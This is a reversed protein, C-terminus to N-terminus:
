AAVEAAAADIADCAALLSHAIMRAVRPPIHVEDVHEGERSQAYSVALAVDAYEKDVIVAAEIDEALHFEDHFPHHSICNPTYDSM